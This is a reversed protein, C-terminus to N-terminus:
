YYGCHKIFNRCMLSSITQMAMDVICPVSVGQLELRHGETRFYQKLVSFVCEIPQYEPSYPPTFLVCFGSSAMAQFFQPCIHTACNDLVLCSRPGPFPTMHPVVFHFIYFLFLDRTAANRVLMHPLPGDATIAASDLFCCSSRRTLACHFMYPPLTIPWVWSPTDVSQKDLFGGLFACCRALSNDVVGALSLALSHLCLISLGLNKCDYRPRMITKSVHSEDFFVLQDPSFHSANVVHQAVREPSAQGLAPKATRMRLGHSRCFRSFSAESIMKGTVALLLDLIVRASAFPYSSALLLLVEEEETDL